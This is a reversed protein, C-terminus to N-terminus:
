GHPVHGDGQPHRQDIQVTQLFGESEDDFLRGTQAGDKGHLVVLGALADDLAEFGVDFFHIEGVPALLGIQFPGLGLRFLREGHEVGQRVAEGDRVHAVAGAVEEGIEVVDQRVAGGAVQYEAADDLGVLRQGLALGDFKRFRRREVGGILGFAVIEVGVIEPLVLCVPVRQELGHGVRQVDGASGSGVGEARCGAVSSEARLGGLREQGVATLVLDRREAHDQGGHEQDQGAGQAAVIDDDACARGVPVGLLQHFGQAHEDAGRGHAHYRSPSM